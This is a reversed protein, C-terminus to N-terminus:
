KRRLLDFVPHLGSKFASEAVLDLIERNHLFISASKVSLKGNTNPDADPDADPAANPNADLDAELHRKRKITARILQEGLLNLAM